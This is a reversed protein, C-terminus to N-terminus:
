KKHDTDLLDGYESQPIDDIGNWGEYDSEPGNLDSSMFDDGTLGEKENVEAYESLQPDDTPRDPGDTNGYKAM